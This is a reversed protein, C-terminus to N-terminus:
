HSSLSRLRGAKGFSGETGCNQGEETLSLWLSLFSRGEQCLFLAPTELEDMSSGPENLM